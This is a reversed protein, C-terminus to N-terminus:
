TRRGSGQSELCSGVPVGGVSSDPGKASFMRECKWCLFSNSLISHTSDDLERHQRDREIQNTSKDEIVEKM